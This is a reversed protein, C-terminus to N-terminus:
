AQFQLSSSGTLSSLLVDSNLNLHEGVWTWLEGDTIAGNQAMQGMESNFVLFEAEGAALGLRKELQQRPSRDETRLLVGGIDFIIAKIM